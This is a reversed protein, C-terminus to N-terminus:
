IIARWQLDALPEQLPGFKIKAMLTYYHVISNDHLDISKTSFEGSLVVYLMTTSRSMM